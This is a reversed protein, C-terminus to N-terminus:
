SSSWVIEVPGKGILEDVKAQVFEASPPGEDTAGKAAFIIRWHGSKFRVAFSLNPVHPNARPWPLKDREDDIRVDALIAHAEYTKGDLHLGLGERVASHGGDCGCLYESELVYQGEASEIR